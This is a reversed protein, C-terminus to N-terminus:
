KFPKVLFKKWRQNGGTHIPSFDWNEMAILLVTDLDVESITWSSLDRSGFKRSKVLFDSYGSWGQNSMQFMFSEQNFWIINIRAPKIIAVSKLSERFLDSFSVWKKSAKLERGLILAFAFDTRARPFSCPLNESEAGPLTTKLIKVFFM